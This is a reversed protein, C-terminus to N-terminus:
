GLQILRADTRATEEALALTNRSMVTATEDAVLTSSACRTEDVGEVMRRSEGLCQTFSRFASLATQGFTTLARCCLEATDFITNVKAVTAAANMASVNLDESELRLTKGSQLDLSSAGRVTLKGPCEVASDQPLLLRATATEDRFLVSLIVDADNELAALLVVDNERPELLCSAALTAEHLVNGVHIRFLNDGASIVTGTFLRAQLEEFLFAPQAM